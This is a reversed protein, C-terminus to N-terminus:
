ELGLRNLRRIRRETGCARKLYMSRYPSMGFEKQIQENPMLFV